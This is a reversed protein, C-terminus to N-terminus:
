RQAKLKKVQHPMYMRMYGGIMYHLGYTMKVPIAESRAKYVEEIDNEHILPLEIGLVTKLRSVETRTIEFDFNEDEDKLLNFKAFRELFKFAERHDKTLKNM